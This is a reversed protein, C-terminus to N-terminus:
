PKCGSPSASPKPTATPPLTPTGSPQTTPPPSGSGHYGPIAAKDFTTMMPSFTKIAYDYVPSTRDYGIAIYVNGTIQLIGPIVNGPDKDTKTFDIRVTIPVLSGGTAISNLTGSTPTVISLWPTISGTKNVIQYPVPTNGGQSFLYTTLDVTNAGTPHGTLLNDNTVALLPGPTVGPQSITRPTNFAVELEVQDAQRGLKIVNAGTKLWSPPIAVQALNNDYCHEGQGEPTAPQAPASISNGNVV